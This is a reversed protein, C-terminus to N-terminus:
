CQFWRELGFKKKIKVKKNARISYQTSNICHMHYMTRYIMLIYYIM